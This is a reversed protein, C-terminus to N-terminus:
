RSIVFVLPIAVPIDQEGGAPFPRSAIIRICNALQADQAVAVTVDRVTGNAALIWRVDARTATVGRRRASEYCMRFMTKRQTIEKVVSEDLVVTATQIATQAPQAVAKQPEPPLSLQNLNELGIEREAGAAMRTAPKIPAAGHLDVNAVNGHMVTLGNVRPAANSRQRRQRRSLPSKKEAPAKAMSPAPSDIERGMAPISEAARNVVPMALADAAPSADATTKWKDAGDLHLHEASGDATSVARQPDAAHNPYQGLAVQTPLVLWALWVLQGSWLRPLPRHSVGKGEATV